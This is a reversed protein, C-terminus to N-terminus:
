KIPCAGSDCELTEIEMLETLRKLNLPKIKKMAKEYQEETITELPAQKFGHDSHCLFSITKIEKINEALWEKIKPIDEKKYYVTVSVSQDAWHKQATKVVDLQKWTDWCEDAVPTGLPMDVYFDVVQTNHDLTGDFREVPEVTHGAEKLIEILPDSASFRVRRIFYSSYAPHIGATCDGLLSLTGSPKVVTTKVSRPVGLEKSYKKDEDQIAKYVRDLTEPCFMVPSELCGTIGVGIRRNKKVVADCMDHHYSECTVRKGYRFMLRAAEEFEDANILNPLVIELLNCPEGNELTAEACPNVGICPDPTKLRPDGMRGYAQMNTRNIIGFPEGNEYTKWFSPHLDEVDDVVVSLNAMARFTPVPGLDWRKSRLFNKDWADGMILIASRRVNGSVVMEGICCLIDMADIPRLHKGARNEMIDCIKKVCDILPLPGSSTGGFGHIAEDKGRILITSYTLSKGTVFFAELTKEILKCWGERKDSVIFDADNTREHEVKINKIVKPLKSVFEHEVSMGVGGGLMLLDTAVVFNKWEDSTLFWCNNLAVGGLKEHSPAGSFWLGRGAPMAKRNLMFYRLRDQEKQSVNHGRVNGAIVRDVTNSWDELKGNDKRAYTRKYVVQALNSWNEYPNLSLVDASKEKV